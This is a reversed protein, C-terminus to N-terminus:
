TCSLTVRQRIVDQTLEFNIKKLYFALKAKYKVRGGLGSKDIVIFIM